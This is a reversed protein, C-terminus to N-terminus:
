SKILYKDPSPIKRLDEFRSKSGYGMSTTRKSRIDPLDYFPLDIVNDKPFRKGKPFSYLMKSTSNNIPNNRIEEPNHVAISNNM